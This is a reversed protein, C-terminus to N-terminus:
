SAFEPGNPLIVVKACQAAAALEFGAVVDSMAMEHSILRDLIPKHLWQMARDYTHRRTYSGRITLERHYIDWPALALTLHSETVGVVVVTAAHRVCDLASRLASPHGVVEFSVDAGLGDTADQVLATLNVERPDV